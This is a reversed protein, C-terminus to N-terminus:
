DIARTRSSYLLCVPLHGDLADILLVQGLGLNKKALLDFDKLYANCAYCSMIRIAQMQHRNPQLQVNKGQQHMQKEKRKENPAAAHFCQPAKHHGLLDSQRDHCM